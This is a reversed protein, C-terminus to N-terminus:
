PSLALAMKPAVLMVSGSLVAEDKPAPDLIESIRVPQSPSVRGAVVPSVWGAPRRTRKKGIMIPVQIQRPGHVCTIRSQRSTM